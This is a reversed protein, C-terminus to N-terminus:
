GCLGGCPGVFFCWVVSLSDFGLGCKGWGVFIYVGRVSECASGFAFDCVASKERVGSMIQGATVVPRYGGGSLGRNFAALLGVVVMRRWSFGFDRERTVLM